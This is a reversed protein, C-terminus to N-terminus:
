LRPSREGEKSAGTVEVEVVLEELGSTTAMAVHATECADLLVWVL